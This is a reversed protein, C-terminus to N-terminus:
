VAGCQLGLEEVQEVENTFLLQLDLLLSLVHCHARVELGVRAEFPHGTSTSRRLGEWLNDGWIHGDAVGYSGIVDELEEPLPDM